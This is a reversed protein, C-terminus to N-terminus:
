ETLLQREINYEGIKVWGGRGQKGFIDVRADVFSANQLMELRSQQGTYGLNSRLVILPSLEGPGIGDRDIAQVFHEGWGDNEGVRKFIANIQVGGVQGADKNQLKLSISPVLKNQGNVIGADFWGTKVETLALAQQVDVSRSCGGLVGGAVVALLLGLTIRRMDGNSVM